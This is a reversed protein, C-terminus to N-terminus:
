PNIESFITVEFYMGWQTGCHHCRMLDCSHVEGINMMTEIQEFPGDKECHPCTEDQSSELLYKISERHSRRM